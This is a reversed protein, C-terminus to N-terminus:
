IKEAPAAVTSPRVAPSRSGTRKARMRNRREGPADLKTRAPTFCAFSSNTSPPISRKSSDPRGQTRISPKRAILTSPERREPLVPLPRSTVYWMAHSFTDARAAGATFGGTDKEWSCATACRASSSTKSIRPRCLRLAALAAPSSSVAACTALPRRSIPAPQLTSPSNVASDSPTVSAMCGENSCNVSLRTLKFRSVFSM